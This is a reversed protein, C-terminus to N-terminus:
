EKYIYVKLAHARLASFFHWFCSSSFLIYRFINWILNKWRKERNWREREWQIESHHETQLICVRLLWFRHFDFSHFFFFSLLFLIFDIPVAAAVCFINNKTSSKETSNSMLLCVFVCAYRCEPGAMRLFISYIITLRRHCDACLVQKRETNTCLNCKSVTSISVSIWSKKMAERKSWRAREDWMNCLIISERLWQTFHYKQDFFKYFCM